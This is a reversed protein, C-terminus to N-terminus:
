SVGPRRQAWKGGGGEVAGLGGGWGGAGEDSRPGKIGVIASSQQEAYWHLASCLDPPAAAAAAATGRVLLPAPSAQWRGWGAVGPRAVGRWAVGRWAVGRCIVHRGANRLRTPAPQQHSSPDHLPESDVVNNVRSKSRYLAAEQKLLGMVQTTMLLASTRHVGRIAEGRRAESRDAPLVSCPPPAKLTGQLCPWSDEPSTPLSHPHM